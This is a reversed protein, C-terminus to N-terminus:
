DAAALATRVVNVVHQPRRTFDQWTFRLLRWGQLLALNDRNRDSQFRDVRTHWRRSDAECGLCSRPWAFDIFHNPNWPAPYQFEPRPLGGEVFVRMGVRELRTATALDDGIRENLLSRMLTSGTRGRRAVSELVESVEDITTKGAALADDLALSMARRRLVAANDVLTRAVTTSWIGGVRTRQDASLDLSRHVIM